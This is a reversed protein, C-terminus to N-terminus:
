GDSGLVKDGTPGPSGGNPEVTVGFGTYSALPEPSRVYLYGYGARGVSFVGGNTRKGDKILWLQYQHEADLQPMQEVVLTGYRGDSSIIIIGNADQAANTGALALTQFDTHNTVKQLQNVERWLFLNSAVLVLIVLLSILSWAFSLSRFRDLFGRQVEVPQSKSGTSHIKGMVKGKLAPPLPVAPAAFGLQDTVMQYALVEATCTDCDKLHREVVAKEDNELSGLAYAPLLDMIHEHESM